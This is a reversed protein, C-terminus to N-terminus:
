GVEGRRSAVRRAVGCAPLGSIKMLEAISMKMSTSGYVVASCHYSKGYLTVGAQAERGRVSWGLGGGVGGGVGVGVGVGLASRAEGGWRGVRLHGVEMGGDRRGGLRRGGVEM